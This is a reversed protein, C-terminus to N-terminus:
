SARSHVACYVVEGAEGAQHERSESASSNFQIIQVMPVAIIKWGTMQMQVAAALSPINPSVHHIELKRSVSPSLPVLSWAM